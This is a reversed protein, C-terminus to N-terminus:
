LVCRNGCLYSSVNEGVPGDICENNKQRLDGSYLTSVTFIDLLVQHKESM